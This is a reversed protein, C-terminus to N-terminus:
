GNSPLFHPARTWLAGVPQPQLPQSTVPALRVASLGSSAPFGPSEQNTHGCSPSGAAALILQKPQKFSLCRERPLLLFLAEALQHM